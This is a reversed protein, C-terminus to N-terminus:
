KVIIKETITQKNNTVAKLLYVGVPLHSIDIQQTQNTSLVQKGLLDFLQIKQIEITSNVNIIDTAPNPYIKVTNIVIQNYEETTLVANTSDFIANIFQTGPFNTCDVSGSGGCATFFQSTSDVIATNFTVNPSQNINNYRFKLHLLRRPTATVFETMLNEPFNENFAWSVTSNTNDNIVFSYFNLVGAFLEGLFYDPYVYTIELNTNGNVNPGFAAQNYDFYIQGSGMKFDTQGDITEVMVDAEYFDDVGDNTNVANMFTFRINQAYNTTGILLILLVILQKIIHTYNQKM